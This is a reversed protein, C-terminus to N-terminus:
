RHASATRRLSPVSNPCKCLTERAGEIEKRTLEELLRKASLDDQVAKIAARKKANADDLEKFKAHTDRQRQECAQLEADLKAECDSASPVSGKLATVKKKFDESCRHQM